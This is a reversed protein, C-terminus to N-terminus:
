EQQWNKVNQVCPCRSYIHSSIIDCCAPATTICHWSFCATYFSVPPTLFWSKFKHQNDFRLQVVKITTNNLHESLLWKTLITMHQYLACIVHKYNFSSLLQKAMEIHTKCCTMDVNNGGESNIQRHHHLCLFIASFLGHSINESWNMWKELM